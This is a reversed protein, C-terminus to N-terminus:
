TKKFRKDLFADLDVRKFPTRGPHPELADAVVTRNPNSVEFGRSQLYDDIYYEVEYSETMAVYIRDIKGRYKKNDHSSWDGKTEAM